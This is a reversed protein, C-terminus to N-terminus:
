TTPDAGLTAKLIAVFERSVAPQIAGKRRIAFVTLRGLDAAMSREHLNPDPQHLRSASILGIGYGLAVYRRITAASQAEVRRPRTRFLGLRDLIKNLDRNGFSAPSNVVPFVALDTARVRRKRALPHDRPTILIIDLEYCPEYFLWQNEPDDAVASLALDAQMSAVVDGAQDANVENLVLRIHPFRRECEAVCPPLDDILLRSSAAVTLQTEQVEEGSQLAQRLSGIGAM